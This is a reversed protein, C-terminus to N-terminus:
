HPEHPLESGCKICSFALGTIEEPSNSLESRNKRAKGVSFQWVFLFKGVKALKREILFKLSMLLSPTLALRPLIKQSTPWGVLM